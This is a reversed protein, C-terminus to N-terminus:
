LNWKINEGIIVNELVIQKKTVKFQRSDGSIGRRGMEKVVIEGRLKQSCIVDKLSDTYAIWHETSLGGQQGAFFTV